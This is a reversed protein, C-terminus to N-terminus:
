KIVTNRGKRDATVCIAIIILAGFVINQWFANVSIIAMGNQIIIVLLVGLLTGWESGKGGSLSTGGLCVAAIGLMNFSEGVTPTGTRMKATLLIGALACFFGCLIFALMKIHIVNIGALRAATENSGIAYIGKGTQTRRQIFICVLVTTISLILSSSFCGYNWRAWDLLHWYPKPVLVPMPAILYAASQWVSMTGLTVIFSPIQFRTYLFGNIAGALIGFFITLVYSWIGLVPMTVSMMICACSIINGISLDIGGVMLVFSVGSACLLLPGIDTLINNINKMSLYNRNMSYFVVILIAIALPSIYQMLNVRKKVFEADRM